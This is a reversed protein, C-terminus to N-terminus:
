APRSLHGAEQQADRASMEVNMRVQVGPKPRHLFSMELAHETLAVRDAAVLLADHIPLALVGRGRLFVMAGTLADAEIAMLRHTLLRKVPAIHELERLRAPRAVAEAPASLWPYRAMIAAGVEAASFGALEPQDEVAGRPWKKAVPGGKGLTATVWEKSRPLGPIAYLDGEPLPLGLLGHMISLHAASVDVEATPQGDITIDVRTVKPLRQYVGSRGLATWRGGLLWSAVFPRYWRPPVCGRVHHEIAFANAEGVAQALEQAQEDDPAPPLV